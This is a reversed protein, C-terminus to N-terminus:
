NLFGKFRDAGYGRAVYYRPITLSQYEPTSTPSKTTYAFDFMEGVVSVIDANFSGGPYAMARVPKGTLATIKEASEALEARLMDASENKLDNHHATHSQFSVLGSAAMERIQDENMYGSTGIMDTILFITAKAGYKKLIPFMNTYNDEYGDDFTLMVSPTSTMRWEEAFLYMYELENLLNLHAEFDEPRVFLAELNNYPEELILHYMMAKPKYIQPANPDETVSIASETAATVPIPETDTLAESDTRGVGETEIATPETGSVTLSPESSTGDTVIGSSDAGFTGGACSSLFILSASLTCLMKKISM